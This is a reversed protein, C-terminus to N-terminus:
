GDCEMLMEGDDGDDGDDGTHGTHGTRGTRGTDGVVEARLSWGGNSHVRAVWEQWVRWVVAWPDYHKVVSCNKDIYMRHYIESNSVELEDGASARLKQRKFGAGSGEDIEMMDSMDSDSASADSADSAGVAGGAGGAASSRSRSRARHERHNANQRRKKELLIREFYLKKTQQLRDADGQNKLVLLPDVFKKSIYYKPSSANGDSPRTSAAAGTTTPEDELYEDISAIYETHPNSIAGSPRGTPCPETGYGYGYGDGYGDGGNALRDGAELIQPLATYGYGHWRSGGDSPSHLHLDSFYDTLRRKRPLGNTELTTEVDLSTEPLEQAQSLPRKQRLTM